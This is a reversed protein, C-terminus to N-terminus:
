IPSRRIKGMSNAICDQLSSTITSILVKNTENVPAGATEPSSEKPESISKETEKVMNTKSSSLHIPPSNLTQSLSPM